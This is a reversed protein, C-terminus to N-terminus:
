PLYTAAAVMAAWDQAVQTAQTEVAVVTTDAVAPAVMGLNTTQSLPGWAAGAAVAQAASVVAAAVAEAALIQAVVQAVMVAMAVQRQSFRVM